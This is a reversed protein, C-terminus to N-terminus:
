AAIDDAREAIKQGVVFKAEDIPLMIHTGAWIKGNFGVGPSQAPKMEGKVFGGQEVVFWKGDAAKKKVEPKFYGVIEFEGRPAYNKNLLVHFMKNGEAMPAEKPKREYVGKPM